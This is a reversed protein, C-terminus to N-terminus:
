QRKPLYPQVGFRALAAALTAILEDKERLVDPNVWSEARPATYTQDPKLVLYPPQTNHGYSNLKHRGGCCGTLALTTALAVCGAFTRMWNNPRM